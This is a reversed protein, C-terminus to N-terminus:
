KPRKDYIFIDKQQQSDSVNYDNFHNSLTTKIADIFNDSENYELPSITRLPNPISSNAGGVPCPTLPSNTECLKRALRGDPTCTPVEEQLRRESDAAVERAENPVFYYGRLGTDSSAAIVLGLISWSRM